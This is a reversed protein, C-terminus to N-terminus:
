SLLSWRRRREGGPQVSHWHPRVGVNALADLALDLQRGSTHDRATVLLVGDVLPALVAADAVALVPPSDWLILDARAKLQEALAALAASTLLDEHEWGPSGAALLLLGPVSTEQLASAVTSPDLLAESVGPTRHLGFIDHQCPNRMDADVVIVRRGTVAIAGALNAAVVSKGVGAEAGAIMLSRPGEGPITAMTNVCLFRFADLAAPQARRAGWLLDDRRGHRRSTRFRPIRGLLPTSVATQLNDASHITPDLNEFLLALGLGGALGVLGGLIVYLNFNPKSPLVPAIAPEAVSISNARM